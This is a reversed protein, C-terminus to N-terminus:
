GIEYRSFRKIVINEGFEAVYADVMDKVKKTDDKIFTQELLCVEQYFKDIKGEIIEEIVSEPKGEKKYESRWKDTKEELLEKGVNDRAVFLPNMAAIQLSLLHALEEFKSSRAVFDTESRLDLLVGVKRNNHVYSAIIGEGTERGKRKSALRSQEEILIAKAKEVDGDTKELAKKCEAISLEVDERLKKIKEVDIM